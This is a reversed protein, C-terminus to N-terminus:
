LVYISSIITYALMSLIVRFTFSTNVILITISLGSYVCSRAGHITFSCTYGLASDSANGEFHLVIDCLIDCKSRSCYPSHSQLKVQSVHIGCSYIRHISHLNKQEEWIKTVPSIVTNFICSFVCSKFKWSIPTDSCIYSEYRDNCVIIWAPSHSFM